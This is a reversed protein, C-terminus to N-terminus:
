HVIYCSWNSISKAMIIEWQRQMLLVCCSCPAWDSMCFVSSVVCQQSVLECHHRLWVRLVLSGTEIRVAVGQDSWGPWSVGCVDWWSQIGCVDCFKQTRCGFYFIHRQLLSTNLTPTVPRPLPPTLSSPFSPCVSLDFSLSHSLIPLIVHCLYIMHHHSCTLFVHFM